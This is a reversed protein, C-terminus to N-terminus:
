ITPDTYSSGGSYFVAGNTRTWVGVGFEAEMIRANLPYEPLEAAIRLGQLSSATRQRFALPKGTDAADWIFAYSAIAWPKVWVEAGNFIGIARNDLRSIDLRKGPVGVTGGVPITLRPDIYAVFGTLARVSTEDTTSIAMCVNGGHGHEIVTKTATALATADWGSNASYHTHSAGAYVEGNPGNPIDASDANLFRKVGLDVKDVLHDRFTYNSSLYIASKIQRQIARLHAKQAGLVMTALDAPTATQFFKSTWGLNYQYSSMPFGVTAGTVNRQTPAKGYEDVENMEGDTSTGYIRQRDTTTECMDAVIENVITNHAAIDARLVKEITDLGYEAVSQFRVKLLASIDYMGTTQTM